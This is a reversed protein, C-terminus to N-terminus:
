DKSVQKKFILVFSKGEVITVVRVKFGCQTATDTLKDLSYKAFGTQTCPLSDLYECSYITNIFIGGNKLIRYIETLGHKLDSWFYVTNITYIKDFFNDDFDTKQVDGLQLKMRREAVANRNRKSASSVMDNSIEIGYYECNNLRELKQLMFGNGFGIDLVRDNETLSLARTTAAYQRRNLRNMLFTSLVGGFGSPKRFQAGIKEFILKMADRM